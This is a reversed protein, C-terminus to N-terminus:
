LKPDKTHSRAAPGAAPRDEVERLFKGLVRWFIKVIKKNLSQSRTRFKM